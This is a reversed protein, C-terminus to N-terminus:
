IEGFFKVICKQLCPLGLFDVGWFFGGGGGGWYSKRFPTPPLPNVVSLAGFAAFITGWFKTWRRRLSSYSFPHLFYAQIKPM